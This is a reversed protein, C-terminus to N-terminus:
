TRRLEVTARASEGKAEEAEVTIRYVNEYKKLTEKLKEAIVRALEEVTINIAPVWVIDEDPFEYRRGHVHVETTGAKKVVELSPNNTPLLLHHDFGACIDALIKKLEIFDVILGREDEYGDVVVKISWNHGHLHECKTHGIVFHAASFGIGGLEIEM